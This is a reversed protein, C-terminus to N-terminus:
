WYDGCVNVWQWGYPTWSRRWCSDYGAYYYPAGFLAFGRFHRHHFGHHGHRGAFAFRPGIGAHAFRPGAFGPRGLGLGGVHGFRAGM